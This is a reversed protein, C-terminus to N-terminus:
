KSSFHRLVMKSHIEKGHLLDDIRHQFDRETKDLNEQRSATLCEYEDVVIATISTQKDNIKGNKRKTLYDIILNRWDIEADCMM